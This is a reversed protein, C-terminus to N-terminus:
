YVSHLASCCQIHTHAHIHSHMHARTGCIESACIALDLVYNKKHVAKCEGRVLIINTLTVFVLGGSHNLAWDLRSAM